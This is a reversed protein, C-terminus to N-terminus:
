CNAVRATFSCNEIVHINLIFVPGAAFPSDLIV